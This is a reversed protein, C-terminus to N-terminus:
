QRGGAAAVRGEAVRHALGRAGVLGREPQLGRVRGCLARPARAPGLRIRLPRRRRCRAGGRSRRQRLRRPRRQRLLEPRQRPLPNGVQRRPGTGPAGLGAGRQGVRDCASVCLNNRKNPLDAERRLRHRQPRPRRPRAGRPPRGHPNHPVLRVPGAQSEPSQQGGPLHVGRRPRMSGVKPRRNPAWPSRPRSRSGRHGDPDM